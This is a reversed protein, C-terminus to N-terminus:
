VNGQIVTTTQARTDLSMWCPPAQHVAVKNWDRDFEHIENLLAHRYHRSPTPIGPPVRRNVNMLEAAATAHKLTKFVKGRAPDQYRVKAYGSRYGAVPDDIPDYIVFQKM